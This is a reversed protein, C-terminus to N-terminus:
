TLLGFSMFAGIPTLDELVQQSFFVQVGFVYEMKDGNIEM